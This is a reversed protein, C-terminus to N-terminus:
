ESCSGSKIASCTDSCQTLGCTWWQWAFREIGFWKFYLITNNALHLGEVCAGKNPAMMCHKDVTPQARKALKTFQRCNKPSHAPRIQWFCKKAFVQGNIHAHLNTRTRSKTPARIKHKAKFRRWTKAYCRGHLSVQHHVSPNCFMKKVHMADHKQSCSIIINSVVCEVHRNNNTQKNTQKKRYSTQEELPIRDTRSAAHEWSYTPTTNLTNTKFLVSNNKGCSLLFVVQHLFQFQHNGQVLNKMLWNKRKHTKFHLSHPPM